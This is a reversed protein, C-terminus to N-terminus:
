GQAFFSYIFILMASTILCFFTLIMGLKRGKYIPPNKLEQVNLGYAHFARAAIATMCLVSFVLVNVEFHSLIYLELLILPLYEACNAHARIANKFAIEDNSGTPLKNKQRLKIVKVSLFIYLTILMLLTTSFLKLDM